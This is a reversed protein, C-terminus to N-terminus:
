HSVGFINRVVQSFGNLWYIKDNSKNTCTIEGAPAEASLTVGTGNDANYRWSWGTNEQITYTGVPLEVLEETGNGWITVESYKTGDKLVDFVYSENDAGGTKKITLTCTKVHILFEKGEPLTCTQGACATHLFTTQNTVDANGIKVAVDVGIDQKTYKGSELKSEDPTYSINLTPETGLMTVDTSVTDGHKWTESGVKNGSFDTPVTEGYYAESDKFTLEPKFVNIKDEKSGTKETANGENKPAVTVEITYTTDDTLNNLGATPIQTGDAKKLTVTIDVFATQWDQLGYNSENLDLDIDGVKVTASTKLQEATM